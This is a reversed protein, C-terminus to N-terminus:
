TKKNMLGKEKKKDKKKKKKKEKKVKKKIVYTTPLPLPNCCMMAAMHHRHVDLFDPPMRAPLEGSDVVEKYMRLHKDRDAFCVVYLLRKILAWKWLAGITFLHFM